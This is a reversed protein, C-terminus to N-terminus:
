RHQQPMNSRHGGSSSGGRTQVGTLEMELEQATASIGNALVRRSLEDGGSREGNRPGKGHEQDQSSSGQVRSSQHVAAVTAPISSNKGNRPPRFILPLYDDTDCAFRSNKFHEELAVRGQVRAYTVHCVKRSNFEEWQQQHFSIYLRKTAHVSTFNVFAYGLNCRNKFDIPLYVFDYASEPEGITEERTNWDTCHNDLLSLLMQQSYKNPINKIMLTTRTDNPQIGAEDFVYQPPVDARQSALKNTSIRTGVRPGERLKGGSGLNSGSEVKGYGGAGGNVSSNRKRRSSVGDGRVPGSVPTTNARGFGQGSSYNEATSATGSYPLAMARTGARGYSLSEMNGVNGMVVLPGAASAPGAQMSAYNYTQLGTQLQSGASNWSQPVALGLPPVPTGINSAWLYSAGGHPGPITLPSATADGSWNLLFPQGAVAGPGSAALSSRSGSIPHYVTAHAAQQQLQVRAKHAQGGPRSFEIKVRKGNIETGDLAKLAKSADRVDYFEVFKHQKKAPTERLEKVDGYVEFVSKLQEMTTDVDLNFVVLTGQNMGDPGAAAGIPLTYQAWMVVGNILGKGPSSSISSSGINHDSILDSHKASDQREYAMDSHERSSSSSAGGRQKQSLQYQQQMRQQKNLHQQQIDRLADKACRLDYFNVTVLGQHKQDSVVTRVDGWKGMEIKLQEDTMHAPVGNLLIARSVHERGSIPPHSLVSQGSIGVSPLGMSQFPPIGYSRLPHSSQVLGVPAVPLHSGTGPSVQHSSLDSVDMGAWPASPTVSGPAFVQNALQSANGFISMTSDPGYTSSYIMASRNDVGSVGSLFIHGSEFSYSTPVGIHHQLLSPPVGPSICPSPAPTYEKANPDLSAKVDHCSVHCSPSVALTAPLVYNSSAYDNERGHHLAALESDMMTQDPLQLAPPPRYEHTLGRPMRPSGGYQAVHGHAHSHQQQPLVYDVSINTDSKRSLEPPSSLVGNEVAQSGSRQENVAIGEPASDADVGSEFSLGQLGERILGAEIYHSSADHTATSTSGGSGTREEGMRESASNMDQTSLTTSSAMSCSSLLRSKLTREVHAREGVTSALAVSSFQAVDVGANVKGGM